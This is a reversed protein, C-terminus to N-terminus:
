QIHQRVVVLNNDGYAIRILEKWCLAEFGSFFASCFVCFPLHLRCFPCVRLSLIMPMLLKSFQLVPVAGSDHCFPFVCCHFSFLVYWLVCIHSDNALAVYPFSFLLFSFLLSSFHLISSCLHPSVPSFHAFIYVPFLSFLSCLASRFMYPLSSLLLYCSQVLVLWSSLTWKLHLPGM